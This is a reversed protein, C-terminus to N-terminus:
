ELEIKVILNSRGVAHALNTVDKIRGIRTYAYSTSFTEYFLVFSQTGWLMLDGSYITMPNSPHTPLNSSFHFYKENGNLESMTLTLPLMAKFATATENDFLKARFTYTNITMKITEHGMEKGKFALNDASCSTLHIFLLLMLFLIHTSKM